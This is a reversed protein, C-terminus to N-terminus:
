NFLISFGLRIERPRSVNQPRASYYNNIQDIGIMGKDGRNIRTRLDDFNVANLTQEVNSLARGSSSYVSLENETDFLNQVQLFVSYDLSGFHFYKEFKLDVNWTTPKNGSNQEYTVTSLTTPLVVTYPEGTQFNVVIGASWDNPQTLAVTANIVHSRDFSLPVLYTETQKGSQDSYFIEASPYTRNGEAVSFTYDLSASFLSGPSRRKLFSLTVGRTNAYALNTLVSYERGLTTYVTESYIYDSVDKYFGTLDFKFDEALQQQLGIEYQVSKQPNVNANGFSPTTGSNTVYYTNNSYLSSLSGTQYFHGYSLRIVGQDTIPYSISLRPSLTQKKKAAVNYATIFGSLSDTLNQSINPNYDSNPDFYEYRLGANLILTSALEIKDQVYAALQTPKKSYSTYLASSTPIRRVYTTTPDLLDSTNLSAYAGSSNLKGIQVDYTEYDLKHMRAEFGVKVEHSKFMQAEFDGKLGITTTRQFERTNDTGGAYFTSNGLTKLYLSPLYRSDTPDKYLYYSSRNYGYSAKLTYFMNNNITHTFDLSNILGESYHTGVGDPNYKFSMSYNKWQGKDLVSEIKLKILPSFKYSINAQANWSKSPNMAVIATDGTPGGKSSTSYPNFFYADTSNKHRPDSSSFADPTLYSDTTNYLRTGYLSGKYNEYIGSAYFNMGKIAPVQGGFTAEVRGRNLVDIKDINTFLSTHNSVYDGGYSRVSFSYKDSGEKTVYNVVGSLANGFQANFTGTSVSVEQVANTALGVARSNGYPDNVSVGNVTYAIENGYGGRVHLDGNDDVVVGAQLKIVDSIQDVPLQQISEATISVQPNTLDQRILPNREGQIVVAPLDLASVKLEFNLKTTFDVNVQVNQISVKQFGIISATVTHLGPSVNLIVYNGDADTASGLSTGEIIVNAYPIPENNDKETVKGTIKGKSQALLACSSFATIFLLVYLLRFNSM